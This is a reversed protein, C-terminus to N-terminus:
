RGPPSTDLRTIRRRAAETMALYAPQLTDGLPRGMEEPPDHHERLLADAPM